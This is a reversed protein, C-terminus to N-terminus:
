STITSPAQASCEGAAQASAPAVHHNAATVGLGSYGLELCVANDVAMSLAQRVKVDPRIGSGFRSMHAYSTQYGNAHKIRVYNGYAANRKAVEATGRGAALILATATGTQTM